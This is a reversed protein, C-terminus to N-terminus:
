TAFDRTRGPTVVPSISAATSANKASCSATGSKLPTGPLTGNGDTQQMETLSSTTWPMGPGRTRRDPSMMLM